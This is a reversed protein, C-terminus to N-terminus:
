LFTVAVQMGLQKENGMSPENEHFLIQRRDERGEEDGFAFMDNIPSLVIEKGPVRYRGGGIHIPESESPLELAEGPNRVGLILPGHRFSRGEISHPNINTEVRITQAFSLEIVDGARMSATFSAFGGEVESPVLTGSVLVCPSGNTTWSPVFLRLTKPTVTSSEIVELRVFGNIPYETSQKLRVDGDHFSVRAMGPTYFPLILADGDVLYLSEVAVALGEGGRMSCCWWAEYADKKPRLFEDNAGACEDCGWGGNSRQAYGMGNFFIHHADELYSAVGTAKWLGFSLIFSDIIACPETWKPRGFWNANAYNETMAEARYLGYLKGALALAESKGSIEWYRLAGRGASLTAHTQFSTAILDIKALSEMMVEILYALREDLLISWAQTVGDLAIFACGIDTSTLWNGRVAEVISGIAEGQFVREEPKVPYSKYNELAPLMLNEAISRVLGLSVADKKWLYHECLGRLLWSHGSIQQEDAIGDRIPKGLYGDGNFCPILHTFIDTLYKPERHTARALMVLGLIARGEFDGPWEYTDEPKSRLVAPVRYEEGELRDFNLLARQLLEGSVNINDLGISIPGRTSDNSSM